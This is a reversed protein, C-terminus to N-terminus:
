ITFTWKAKPNPTNSREKGSAINGFNYGLPEPWNKEDFQPAVILYDNQAAWEIWSDLYVDADRQRGAMIMLVKTKSSTKPPLAFFVKVFPNGPSEFVFSQRPGSSPVRSADPPFAAVKVPSQAFCIASFSLAIGFDLLLRRVTNM